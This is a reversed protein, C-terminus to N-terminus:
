DGTYKEIVEILEGPLIPKRLIEDIMGEKLADYLLGKEEQPGYGTFLIAKIESKISKIERFIDVGTKDGKLVLDLLVIDVDNEQFKEFAEQSSCATFVLWQGTEDLIM